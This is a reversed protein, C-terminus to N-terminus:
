FRRKSVGAGAWHAATIDDRVAASVWWFAKDHILGIETWQTPAMEVETLDTLLPGVISARLM